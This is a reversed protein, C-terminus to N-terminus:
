NSSRGSSISMQSKIELYSSRLWSYFKNKVLQTDSPVVMCVYFKNIMGQRALHELSYSHMIFCAYEAKMLQTKSPIVAVIVQKYSRSIEQHSLHEFSIAVLM